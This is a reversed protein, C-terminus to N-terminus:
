TWESFDPIGRIPNGDPDHFVVVEGHPGETLVADLGREILHDVTQRPNDVVVTLHSLGLSSPDHEERPPSGPQAFHIIEIRQGSTTLLWTTLRAPGVDMVRSPGPGSWDIAGTEQWGLLEKYFPLSRSPDAVCLSWHSLHSIGTDSRRDDSAGAGAFANWDDDSEYTEIINGDCDEFLFQTDATGPVFSSLTHERVTVGHALLKSMVGAVPGTAVTMHSLGLHNVQPPPTVSRRTDFSAVEIRQGDRLFRISWRGPQSVDEVPAGLARWGMVERYFASSRELNAVTLTWHSFGIISLIERGV